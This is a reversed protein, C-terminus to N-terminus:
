KIIKQTFVVSSNEMLKLIYVGAKLNSVDLHKTNTNITFQKILEGTINYIEGKVSHNDRKSITLEDTFPNPFVDFTTNTNETIDTTIYITINSSTLETTNTTSNSMKCYYEGQTLFQFLGDGLSEIVSNDVQTNTTADYWKFTTTNGNLYAEESWDLVYGTEYTEEEFIKKSSFYDETFYDKLGTLQSLKFYNDSCNMETLQNETALSINELDNNSCNIKQIYNNQSLDLNQLQNNACNLNELNIFRGFEITNLENSSCNLTTLTTNEIENKLNNTTIYGSNITSIQNNSCDITQLLTNSSINLETLNNYSCDLTILNVNNSIDLNSISNNSCNLETLNIFYEIGTLDTIDLSSVDIASTYAEAEYIQIYGDGNTNIDPQNILWSLFIGDTIVIQNACDASFDGSSNYDSWETNSYEPDDVAICDLSYNNLNRYNLINTNNGNQLNIFTLPKNNSCYIDQLNTNNSLDIYSIDNYRCDLTKINTNNSLDLSSLNNSRCFLYELLTNNTIDLTTLNCGIYSLYRLSTNNSLDISNTSEEFYAGSLMLATMNTCNSINISDIVTNDLNICNLKESSNLNLDVHMNCLLNNSIWVTDINPCNLVNILFNDNLYNSEDEPVAEILVYKLNPSQITLNQTHGGVEDNGSYWIFLNTLNTFNSLPSYDTYGSLSLTGSYNSAEDTTIEDDENTNISLNELLKTKLDIDEFYINQQALLKNANIWLFALTTITLLVAKSKIM